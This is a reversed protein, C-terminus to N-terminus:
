DDPDLLYPLDNCYEKLFCHKMFDLGRGIRTKKASLHPWKKSIKPRKQYYLSISRNHDRCFQEIYRTTNEDVLKPENGRIDILTIHPLLHIIEIVNEHSICDYGNRIALHKLNPYKYLVRRLISWNPYASLQLVLDELFLNKIGSNVCFQDDRDIYHYASKLVPCKDALSFGHYDYRSGWQSSGIVELIELKELTPGTYFTDEFDDLTHHAIHLRKLNPFYKAYESLRSIPCRGVHLQTLMPGQIDNAFFDCFDDIALMKFSSNCNTFNELNVQSFLFGEVTPNSFCDPECSNEIIKLKPFWELREILGHRDEYDYLITNRVPYSEIPGYDALYKVNSLRQTVLCKWRECVHSCNLLTGFKDFFNFIHLLCDDPLKDIDM